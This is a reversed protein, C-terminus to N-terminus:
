TTKLADMWQTIHDVTDHNDLSEVVTLNESVKWGQRDVVWEGDDLQGLEIQYELTNVRTLLNYFDKAKENRSVSSSNKGAKEAGIKTKRMMRELVHVNTNENRAELRRGM